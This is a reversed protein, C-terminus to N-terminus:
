AQKAKTAAEHIRGWAEQVPRSKADSWPKSSEVFTKTAKALFKADAEDLEITVKM